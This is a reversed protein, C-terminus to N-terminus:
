ITPKIWDEPEMYGYCGPIYSSTKMIKKAQRLRM